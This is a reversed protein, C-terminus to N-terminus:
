LDPTKVAPVPFLAPIEFLRSFSFESITDSVTVGNVLCLFPSFFLALMSGFYRNKSRYPIILSLINISQKRSKRREAAGPTSPIVTRFGEQLHPVVPSEGSGADHFGQIVPLAEKRYSQCRLDFV